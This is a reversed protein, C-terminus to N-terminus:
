EDRVTILPIPFGQRVLDCERRGDFVRAQRTVPAAGTAKRRDYVGLDILTCLDLAALAADVAKEDRDAPRPQKPHWQSPLSPPVSRTAVSSEGTCGSVALLCVLLLRRLYKMVWLTCVFQGESWGSCSM